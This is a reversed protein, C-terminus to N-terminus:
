NELVTHRHSILGTTNTLNNNNLADYTMIQFPKMEGEGYKKLKIKQAEM